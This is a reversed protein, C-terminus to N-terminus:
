QRQRQLQLALSCRSRCFRRCNPMSVTLLHILLTSRWRRLQTAVTLRVNVAAAFAPVTVARTILCLEITLGKLNLTLLARAQLPQSAVNSNFGAYLSHRYHSILMM